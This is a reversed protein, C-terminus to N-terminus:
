EGKKLNFQGKWYERWYVYSSVEAEKEELADEQFYGVIKLLISVMVVSSFDYERKIDKAADLLEQEPTDRGFYSM